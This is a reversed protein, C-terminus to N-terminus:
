RFTFTLRYILRHRRNNEADSRRTRWELGNELKYRSSLQWGLGAYLRTERYFLPDEEFINALWEAQANLYTEGPDLREGQLPFDVSPRLRWRHRVQWGESRFFRQEARARVRTRYKGWRRAWTLQQLSRHEIDKEEEDLGRWGFQYGGSLNLDTTLQYALGAQFNYTHPTFAYDAARGEAKESFNSELSTNVSWDWRSGLEGNWSLQPLLELTTRTQGFVSHKCLLGISLLFYIQLAKM